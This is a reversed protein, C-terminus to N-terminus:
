RTLAKIVGNVLESLPQAVINSPNISLKEAVYSPSKWQGNTLDFGAAGVGIASVLLHTGANVGRQLNETLQKAHGAAVMLIDLQTGQEDSWGFIVPQEGFQLEWALEQYTGAGNIVLGYEDRDMRDESPDLYFEGM